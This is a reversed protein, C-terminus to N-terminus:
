RASPWGHYGRGVFASYKALRGRAIRAEDRPDVYGKPEISDFAPAWFAEDMGLLVGTAGLLAPDDLRTDPFFDYQSPQGGMVGRACYITPAAAGHPRPWYFATQSAPGYHQAVVFVRAPASGDTPAHASENALAAVRAAREKAGTLRYVPVLPGVLPLRAMLDIRLMALGVVVGVGISWHTLVQWATEPKRRLAGRKPRERASPGSATWARVLARYRDMHAPAAAGVLALLTTYGAVPWNGEAETFFSLALYFLIVPAACCLLFRAAPWPAGFPPMPGAGDTSRRARWAGVAAMGMLGLAPGMAAQAGLFGLTWLPNYSWGPDSSAPAGSAHLHELLHRVTPWGRTQNWILVPSICAVFAALAVLRWAWAGAGGSLAAEGARRAERRHLWAGIAVGVLLLLITYKFLFGVGLALAFGVLAPGSRRSVTAWAAWAALAWCALYPGDITMLLGAGLHMPALAWLACAWLGARRDRSVSMALGAVGVMAAASALASPLRVAWEHDGFARTAAAIAWAVGPGKTYYSLGLRRSWEWYHAEDEILEYPCLWLHYAIRLALLGVILALARAWGNWALRPTPPAM